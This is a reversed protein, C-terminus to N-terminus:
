RSESHEVLRSVTFVPTYIFLRLGGGIRESIAVCTRERRPMVGKRM